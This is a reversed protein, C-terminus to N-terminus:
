NQCQQIDKVVYFFKFYNSRLKIFSVHQNQHKAFLTVLLNILASNYLPICMRYVIMNQYKAKSLHALKSLALFCASRCSKLIIAVKMMMM